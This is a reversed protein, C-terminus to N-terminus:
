RETLEKLSGSLFSFLVVNGLSYSVQRVQKLRSSRGDVIFGSNTHHFEVALRVTAQPNTYNTTFNSGLAQAEFSDKDSM